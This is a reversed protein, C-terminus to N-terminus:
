MVEKTLFPVTSPSGGVPNGSAKTRGSSFATLGSTGCPGHGDPDGSPKMPGATHLHARTVWATPRLSGRRWGLVQGGSLLGGHPIRSLLPGSVSEHGPTSQSCM